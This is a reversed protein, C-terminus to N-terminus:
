FREEFTVPPVPRGDVEQYVYTMRLTSRGIFRLEATADM